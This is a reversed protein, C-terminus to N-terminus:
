STIYSPPVLCGMLESNLTVGTTLYDQRLNMTNTKEKPVGRHLQQPNVFVLAVLDQM